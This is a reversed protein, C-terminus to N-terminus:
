VLVCHQTQVFRSVEVVLRRWSTVDIGVVFRRDLANACSQGITVVCVRGWCSVFQNFRVSFSGRERGLFFFAGGSQTCTSVVCCVMSSRTLIGVTFLGKSSKTNGGKTTVLSIRYSDHKGITCHEMPGDLSTVIFRNDQGHVVAFAIVLTPRNERFVDQCVDQRFIDQPHGM